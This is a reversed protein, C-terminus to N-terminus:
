ATGRVFFLLLAGAIMSILGLFRLKREDLQAIQLLTRKMGGPNLFPM